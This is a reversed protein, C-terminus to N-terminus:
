IYKKERKETHQHYKDHIYKRTDCKPKKNHFLYYQLLPLLSAQLVVLLKTLTHRTSYRTTAATTVNISGNPTVNATTTMSEDKNTKEATRTTDETRKIKAWKRKKRRAHTCTHM